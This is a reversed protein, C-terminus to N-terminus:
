ERLATIPLVYVGDPRMFAANSLGTIVFLGSAPRGGNREILSNVKLLNAAAADVQSFGLKIEFAFWSGDKKEVVADIENNRYDRYHLLNASFSDAYIKLDREVLAEFLFGFTNLDSILGESSVGLLACALSPDALHMKSAQRMRLSSRCGPSFPEQNDLLFMREFVDLYVSVTEPNLREDGNGTMDALLTKKTALTSENRAISKLLLRMKHRDYKIGDVFDNELVSNVYSEPMYSILNAPADINGPWGGRVILKALHSLSVEGVAKDQMKGECLESLSVVGSSDGSEFLSMPRMRLKAIRGAGSHIIGKRNPTASGTLIFQGKDAQRDTYSRVADWLSPVEQWEDVLRPKEGDLVTDPSVEAIRRNQFDNAALGVQFESNSHMSSTWTKGCWKPGEICIAPAVKLYDDIKRDIVRPKYKSADAIRNVREKEM